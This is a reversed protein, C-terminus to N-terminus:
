CAAQQPCTRGEGPPVTFVVSRCWSCTASVTLMSVRSIVERDHEDGIGAEHEDQVGPLV